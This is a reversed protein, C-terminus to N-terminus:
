NSRTEQARKRYESPFLGTSKKFNSAFRGSNSYGTIQSIQEIPISSTALLVEAHSMRRQKIYETITSGYINKFLKKLKTSGMCAIGCLTVLPIDHNYHDSIYATVNELLDIDQKSIDMKEVARYTRNYEVILSIAEAVKAEFFLKAAIGEGKYNWVQRLLGIIQPFNNTQDINRFAELYDIHEDPYNEKLYKEYYAPMIEIGISRIPINKHFIAKYPKYGGIFSKVCGATLRRHPMLEEGSISEYYTISLCDPMEFDLTSDEFFLFDHIKIDYLDKRGYIWYSGEGAEAPVKFVTGLPSYPTSGEQVIFGSEILKSQYFKEINSMFEKRDYMDSEIESLKSTARRLTNFNSELFIIINKRNSVVLKIM